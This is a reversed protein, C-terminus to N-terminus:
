LKQIMCYVLLQRIWNDLKEANVEGNYMPLEFKIDLKLLPTQPPTKGHGKPISQSSKSSDSSSSSSPSSPPPDGDGDNGGKGKPPKEDKGENGKPTKSREGQFKANREEFLIKVMGAMDYFAKKFSEEDSTPVEHSEEHAMSPSHERAVQPSQITRMRSLQSSPEM